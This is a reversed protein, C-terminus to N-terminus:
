DAYLTGTSFYKTGNLRFGDGDRTLRPRRHDAGVSTSGLETSADGVIAGRLALDVLARARGDDLRLREEVYAFHERLIHAVNFDVAALAVM